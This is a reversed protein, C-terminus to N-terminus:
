RTWRALVDDVSEEPAGASRVAPTRSFRPAPAPGDPGFTARAKLHEDSAVEGLELVPTVCADVDDFVAAWEDRTRTALREALVRRLEPWGAKDMQPPLQAPDLELGRLLASFFQPELAAVALYRGDSCAYTDYFPAGGDLLNDGRDDTWMGAARLQWMMQSLLAVGDVMAADVVQGRGSRARETLAALVGVLLLMSGGGFDAVLNQPPPPPSDPRGLAALTGSLGLYNLDHGARAARPGTQGWGTMRGYVLSANAALCPEPGLGLREMVGPRFGEILVDAAAALGLVQDRHSDDKLDLGLWARNGELLAPLAGPRRVAVVDAGLDALVMGAHPVPGLGGMEVVRVGTLPGAMRAM